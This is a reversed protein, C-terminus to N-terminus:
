CRKACTKVCAAFVRPGLKGPCGDVCKDLGSGPCGGAEGLRM